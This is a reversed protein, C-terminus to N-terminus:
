DIDNITPPQSTPLVHRVKRAASPFNGSLVSNVIPTSTLSFIIFTCPFDILTLTVKKLLTVVWYLNSLTLDKQFM